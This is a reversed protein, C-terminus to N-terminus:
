AAIAIGRKLARRTPTDVLVRNFRNIMEESLDKAVDWESGNAQVVRRHLAPVDRRYSVDRAQLRRDRLDGKFQERLFGYALLENLLITIM